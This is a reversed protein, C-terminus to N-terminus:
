RELDEKMKLYEERSIEGKAYREKLIELARRADRAEIPGQGTIGAILYYVGVAILVLFVVAVLPVIWLGFGIFGRLGIMRPMLGSWFRWMLVSFIGAFVMLVIFVVILWALDRKKSMKEEGLPYATVNWLRSYKGTRSKRTRLEELSSLNYFFKGLNCWFRERITSFDLQQRDKKELAGLRQCNL